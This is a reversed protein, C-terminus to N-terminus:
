QCGKYHTARSHLMAVLLASMSVHLMSHLSLRRKSRYALAGLCLLLQVVSPAVYLCGQTCIITGRRGTTTNYPLATAPDTAGSLAGTHLQQSLERISILLRSQKTHIHMLWLGDDKPQRNMKKLNPTAHMSGYGSGTSVSM